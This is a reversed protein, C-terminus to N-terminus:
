SFHKRGNEADIKLCGYVEGFSHHGEGSLWEAHLSIERMKSFVMLDDQLQRWEDVAKPDYPSLYLYGSLKRRSTRRPTVPLELSNRRSVSLGPDSDSSRRSPSLDEEEQKGPSDEEEEGGGPDQGPKPRFESRGHKACFTIDYRFRQVLFQTKLYHYYEM